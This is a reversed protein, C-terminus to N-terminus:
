DDTIETGPAERLQAALRDFSEEFERSDTMDVYYRVRIGLRPNCPQYLLGIFRRQSQELGIHEALVVELDAFNSRLYNNSLVGVTYRSRVVAREMEKVIPAGWRFDLYDVFVRFGEAKLRPV